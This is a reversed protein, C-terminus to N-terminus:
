SKIVARETAFVSTDDAYVEVLDHAIAFQSIKGIDLTPDIEHALSCALM